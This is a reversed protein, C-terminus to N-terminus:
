NQATTNWVEKNTPSEVGGGKAYQKGSQLGKYLEMANVPTFYMDRELGLMFPKFKISELDTRSVSGVEVEFLDTIAWIYDPDEPDSNLLYWTGRGYPNFIKAVVMQNNLDSGKPYQEFLKQDIDKTFLKM